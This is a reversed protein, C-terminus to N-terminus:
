IPCELMTKSFLKGREIEQWVALFGSSYFNFLDFFSAVALTVGAVEIAAEEEEGRWEESAKISHRHRAAQYM